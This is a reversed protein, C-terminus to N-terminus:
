SSKKKAHEELWRVAEENNLEAAKRINELALENEGNEYHQQGKYLYTLSLVPKLDKSGPNIRNAQDYCAFAFDYYGKDAYSIGRVIWDTETRWDVLNLDDLENHTQLKKKIANGVKYNETGSKPLDDNGTDIFSLDLFVNIGNLNDAQKDKDPVDYISENLNFYDFSFMIAKRIYSKPVPLISDPKFMGRYDNEALIKRYASIIEQSFPYCYFDDLRWKVPFNIDEFSLMALLKESEAKKRGFADRSEVESLTKLWLLQLNIEQRRKWDGLFKAQILDEDLKKKIKRYPSNGEKKAKTFNFLLGAVIIGGIIYIIIM